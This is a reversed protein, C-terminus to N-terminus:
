ENIVIRHINTGKSSVKIQFAAHSPLQTKHTETDFTILGNTMKEFAGIATLLARRQAPCTQLFELTSMVCPAQSFDEIISYNQAARVNLNHTSKKLVSKPVHPMMGVPPREIQLPSPQSMTAEKDHSGV